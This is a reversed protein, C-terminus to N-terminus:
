LEGICLLRESVDLLDLKHYDFSKKIFEADGLGINILEDEYHKKGKGVPIVTVRKAVTEMLETIESIDFFRIRYLPNSEGMKAFYDVFSRNHANHVTAIIRHKTIRVQERMLKMIDSDSFLVWAGNHFSLDFSKNEFNTKFCDQQSFKDAILPSKQQALSVAKESYDVGYCDVGMSNLAVTDRFSGAFLEVIKNENPNLVARIYYAHRLDQQYHDFVDEWQEDWQEKSTLGGEFNSM